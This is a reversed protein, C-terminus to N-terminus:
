RFVSCYSLQTKQMTISPLLFPKPPIRQWSNLVTSPCPFRCLFHCGSANQELCVDGLLSFYSGNMSSNVASFNVNSSKSEIIYLDGISILVSQWTSCSTKSLLFCLEVCTLHSSDM